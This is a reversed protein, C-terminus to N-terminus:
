WLSRYLPLWSIRIRTNATGGPASVNLINTGPYFARLTSGRAIRGSALGGNM